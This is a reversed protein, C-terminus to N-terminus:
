LASDVLGEFPGCRPFKPDAYGFEGRPRATAAPVELALEPAAEAEARPLEQSVLADLPEGVVQARAQADGIRGQFGAETRRATDVLRGPVTQAHGRRAHAAAAAALEDM